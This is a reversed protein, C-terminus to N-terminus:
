GSCDIVVDDYACLLSAFQSFVSYSYMVGPDYSKIVECIM